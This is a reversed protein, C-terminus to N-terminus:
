GVRRLRLVTNVTQVRMHSGVRLVSRVLSSHCLVMGEEDFVSMRAGLKIRPLIVTKGTIDAWIKSSSERTSSVEELKWM